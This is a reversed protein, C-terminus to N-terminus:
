DLRAFGALMQDMAVREEVAAKTPWDAIAQSGCVRDLILRAAALDGERARALVATVIQRVDAETISEMFATRYTLARRPPTDGATEADVPPTDDDLTRKAM